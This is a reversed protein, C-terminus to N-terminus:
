WAIFLYIVIMSILLAILVSWWRLAPVLILLLIIIMLFLIFICVIRTANSTREIKIPKELAAEEASLVKPLLHVSFENETAERPETDVTVM